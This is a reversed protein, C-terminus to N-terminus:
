NQENKNEKKNKGQTTNDWLNDTDYDSFYNAIYNQHHEESVNKDNQTESNKRGKYFSKNWLNDSDYPTNDSIAEDSPTYEKVDRNNSKNGGGQHMESDWLTDNEVDYRLQMSEEPLDFFGPLEDPEDTYDYIPAGDNTRNQYIEKNWLSESDYDAYANQTKADLIFDNEDIDNDPDDFETKKVTGGRGKTMNVDCIGDYEEEAEDAEKKLRKWGEIQEREMELSMEELTLFEVSEDQKKPVKGKWMDVEIADAGNEALKKLLAKYYMRSYTECVVMLLAVFIHTYILSQKTTYGFVEFMRLNSFLVSYVFRGTFPLYYVAFSIVAYVLYALGNIVFFEFRKTRQKAYRMWFIWNAVCFAVFAVLKTVAMIRGGPNIYVIMLGLVSPIFSAMVNEVIRIAFLMLFQLRENSQNKWLLDDMYIKKKM